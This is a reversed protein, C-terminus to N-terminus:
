RSERNRTKSLNIIVQSFIMFLIAYYLYRTGSRLNYNYSYITFLICLVYMIQGLLYQKQIFSRRIFIEFAGFLYGTVFFYGFTLEKGMSFIEGYLSFPAYINLRMQKAISYWKTFTGLMPNLGILTTSWDIISHNQTQTSTFFGYVFLYYIIFKLQKGFYKISEPLFKLYPILGHEDLSRLQIIYLLLITSLVIFFLLKLTSALNRKSRMFNLIGYLLVYVLLLRSGTSISLVVTISFLGNSIARHYNHLQSLSIILFVFILNSIILYINSQNHPIYEKRFLFGMDKYSFFLLIQSIFFLILCFAFQMKAKKARVGAIKTISREWILNGTGVGTFHVKEHFLKSNRSFLLHISVGVLFSNISILFYNFTSHFLTEGTLRNFYFLDIGEYNNIFYRYCFVLFLSVTM